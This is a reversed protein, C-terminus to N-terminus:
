GEEQQGRSGLSDLKISGRVALQQELAAGLDTEPLRERGLGLHHCRPHRLKIDIVSRVTFRLHDERCGFGLILGVAKVLGDGVKLTTDLARETVAVPGISGMVAWATRDEKEIATFSTTFVPNGEQLLTNELNQRLSGSTQRNDQLM